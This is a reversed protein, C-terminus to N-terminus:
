CFCSRVQSRFAQRLASSMAQSWEDERPAQGLSASGALSPTSAGSASASPGRSSPAASSGMGLRTRYAAMLATYSPPAGWPRSGVCTMLTYLRSLM